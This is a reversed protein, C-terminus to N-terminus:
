EAHNIFYDNLAASHFELKEMPNIDVEKGDRYVSKVVVDLEDSNVFNKLSYFVTGIYHRTAPGKLTHKTQYLKSEDAKPYADFLQKSVRKDAYKVASRNFRKGNSMLQGNQIKSM